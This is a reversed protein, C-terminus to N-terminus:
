SGEKSNINHEEFIRRGEVFGFAGEFAARLDRGIANFPLPEGEERQATGSVEFLNASGGEPENVTYNILGRRKSRVIFTRNEIGM